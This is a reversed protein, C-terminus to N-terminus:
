IYGSKHNPDMWLHRWVNKSIKLQVGGEGKDGM